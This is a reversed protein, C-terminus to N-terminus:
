RLVHGADIRPRPPSARDHDTRRTSSQRPPPGRSALEVGGLTYGWLTYPRGSRPRSSKRPATRRRPGEGGNLKLIFRTRAYRSDIYRFLLHIKECDIAGGTLTLRFGSRHSCTRRLSSSHPGLAHLGGLGAVARHDVCAPWRATRQLQSPGDGCVRDVCVGLVYLTRPLHRTPRNCGQEHRGDPPRCSWEPTRLRIPSRM